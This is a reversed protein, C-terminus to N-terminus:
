VIEWMSGMNKFGGEPMCGPCTKKEEGSSCGNCSGCVSFDIRRIVGSKELFEIDREVIEVPKGLEAAIMKVSRSRGDKLLELLEQM